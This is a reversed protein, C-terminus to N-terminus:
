DLEYGCTGCFTIGHTNIIEGYFGKGCSHKRMRTVEQKDLGHLDRCFLHAAGKLGM